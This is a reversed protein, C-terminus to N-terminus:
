KNDDGMEFLSLHKELRKYNIILVRLYPNCIINLKRNEIASLTIKFVLLYLFYKNSFFYM